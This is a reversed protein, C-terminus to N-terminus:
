LEEAFAWNNLYKEFHGIYVSLKNKTKAEPIIYWGKKALVALFNWSKEKYREWKGSGMTRQLTCREYSYPYKKNSRNYNRYATKIQIKLLRTGTDVICDYIGVPIAPTFAQYQHEMAALIFKIETIYGKVAHKKAM